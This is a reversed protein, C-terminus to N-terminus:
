KKRPGIFGCKTLYRKAARALEPRLEFAFLDNELRGKDM